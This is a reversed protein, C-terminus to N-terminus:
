PFSPSVLSIMQGEEGDGLVRYGLLVLDTSKDTRCYLSFSLQFRVRLETVTMKLPGPTIM